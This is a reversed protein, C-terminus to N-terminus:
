KVKGNWLIPFHLKSNIQTTWRENARKVWWWWWWIFPIIRATLPEQFQRLEAMKSGSPPPNMGSVKYITYIYRGNFHSKKSSWQETRLTHCCRKADQTQYIFSVVWWLGVGVGGGNGSKYVTNNVAYRTSSSVTRSTKQAWWSINFICVYKGSMIRRSYWLTKCVFKALLVGRPCEQLYM